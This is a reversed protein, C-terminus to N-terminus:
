PQEHSRRVYRRSSLDLDSAEPALAGSADAYIILNYVDDGDPSDFSAVRVLADEPHCEHPVPTVEAEVYHGSLGNAEFPEPGSLQCEPKDDGDGYAAEAWMVAVGQAAAETDFGAEGMGNTGAKAPALTCDGGREGYSAVSSMGVTPRYGFPADPDEEEFGTIVGPSEVTWHGPVDYALPRREAVVEQVRGHGSREASDGTDADADAEDDAAAGDADADADADARADSGDQGANDTSAAEPGASSGSEEADDGSGGCAALAGAVVLSAAAASFRKM